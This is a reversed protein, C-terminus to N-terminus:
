QWRRSSRRGSLALSGFRGSALHQAARRQDVIQLSRLREDEGARALLLTRRVHVQALPASARAIRQRHIRDSRHNRGQHPRVRWHSRAVSAGARRARSGSARCRRHPSKALTPRLSIVTKLGGFYDLKYAGVYTPPYQVDSKFILHGGNDVRASFISDNPVLQLVGGTLSPPM